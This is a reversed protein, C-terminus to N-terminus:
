RNPAIYEMVDTTPTWPTNNELPTHQLEGPRASEYRITKGTAEALQQVSHYEGSGLSYIGPEWQLSQLIAEVVDDVHVYSRTANGDGYIVVDSNIFKDVVSHSGPGYVNPLRLITPRQCLLKLYEEACWKSMGYPSEIREQVCGGSSAFIFQKGSYHKALRITGLINTQADHVPDEISPIVRSQAALHIVCDVDPLDCSLIDQGDKLDLGTADPLRRKLHQGIFGGSGTILISM